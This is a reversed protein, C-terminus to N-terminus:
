ARRRRRKGTPLVLGAVAMAAIAAWPWPQAQFAQIFTSMVTPIADLFAQLFTPLLNNTM